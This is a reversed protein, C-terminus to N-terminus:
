GREDGAGDCAPCKRTHHTLCERIGDPCPVAHSGKGDCQRCKTPAPEGGEIPLARIATACVEAVNAELDKGPYRHRAEIADCVDAAAERGARFGEARAAAIGEAVVRYLHAGDDYKAIIADAAQRDQETPTVPPITRARQCNKVGKAVAFAGKACWKWCQDKTATEISKAKERGCDPCKTEESM